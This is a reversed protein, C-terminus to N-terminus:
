KKSALGGRKMKKAKPKPKAAMGGSALGIEDRTQDFSQRGIDSFYSGERSASPQSGGGDGDSERQPSPATPASGLDEDYGTDAAVEKTAEKIKQEIIRDFIEDRESDDRSLQQAKKLQERTEKAIREQEAVRKNAERTLADQKISALLDSTAPSNAGSEDISTKLRNYEDGTLKFKDKGRQFNVTVGSPLPKGSLLGFATGAVGL